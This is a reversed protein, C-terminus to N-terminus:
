LSLGCPLSVPPHPRSLPNAPGLYLGWSERALAESSSCEKSDPGPQPAEDLAESPYAAPLSRLLLGMGGRTRRHLALPSLLPVPTQGCFM